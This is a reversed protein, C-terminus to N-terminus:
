VGVVRVVEKAREARELASEVEEGVVTLHGMKRAVKSEEKGYIHVKLNADQAYAEEVGLVTAVGGKEEGLLNKMVVPSIFDVNGPALGTIARIHNEFQNCRTGEITYHGSNHPRPAVENVYIEDDVVFMEICFTGVGDFIKMVHDAIEQATQMSEESIRAPVITTDLISDKHINEAVPYIQRQGDISRCAIISIEKQFPIFAEVMLEQTGNGLEVYAREVEDQTRILFNGKGDYGGKTTKLMMPYSFTNGIHYIDEITCVKEFTPVPIQKEELLKKQAYKDQIVKLSTVSPYVVHGESELKELAAANIHEFEYTIVDVKKALERIAEEDDFDAVIHEDSISHSPCKRAPDLIVIYFGLRKAELIMMKGLQGGGIIGIKKSLVRM